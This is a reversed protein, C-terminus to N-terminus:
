RTSRIKEVSWEIIETGHLVQSIDQVLSLKANVDDEKLIEIYKEINDYIGLESLKHVLDRNSEIQLSDLKDSIDQRRKRLEKTSAEITNENKAINLLELFYKSTDDNLWKGFDDTNQIFSNMANNIIEGSSRIAGLPTNIEHGIGAILRGLSAMKESRLLQTQASRLYEEKEVLKQEGDKVRSELLKTYHEMAKHATKLNNHLSQKQTVDTMITISGCIEKNGNLIPSSILDYVHSNITIYKQSSCRANNEMAYVAPCSECPKGTKCIVDYCKKGVLENQKSHTINEIEKNIGVITLDKDLFLIGAAISNSIADHERQITILRQEIEKQETIDIGFSIYEIEGTIDNIIKKNTWTIYKCEGNKTIIENTNVSTDETNKLKNLIFERAPEGNKDKEPVLAEIANKGTLDELSYGFLSLCYKNAYKIKLDETMILFICEASHAINKLYKLRKYISDAQFCIRLFALTTLTATAVLFIASIAVKNALISCLTMIALLTIILMFAVSQKNFVKEM